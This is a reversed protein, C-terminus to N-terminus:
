LEWQSAAPVRFSIFRLSALKAQGLFAVTVKEGRNRQIECPIDELVNKLKEKFRFYLIYQSKM